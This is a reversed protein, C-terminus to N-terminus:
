QAGWAVCFENWIADTRYHPLGHVDAGSVDTPDGLRARQANCRARNTSRSGSINWAVAVRVMLNYPLQLEAVVARLQDPRLVDNGVQKTRPIRTRQRSEM